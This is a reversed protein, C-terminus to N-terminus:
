DTNRKFKMAVRRVVNRATPIQSLGWAIRSQVSKIRTYFTMKLTKRVYIADGWGQGRVWRTSARKFGKSELYEDIEAIKSCGEYVDGKNVESYIWKIQDFYSGM